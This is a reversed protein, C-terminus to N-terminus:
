SYRIRLMVIRISDTDSQFDMGVYDNAAIGTLADSVPIEEINGSTVSETLNLSSDSNATSSENDAGFDTLVDWQITETADPITMVEASTLSTFDNPIFFSFHANNTAGITATMFDGVATIYPFTNGDRDTTHVFFEKTKGVEADVYAKISQQTALMVASDSAMNDEDLCDSIDSTTPFDINKGNLDLDGGLQPTTDEVLNALKGPDIHKITGLRRRSM